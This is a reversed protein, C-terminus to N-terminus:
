NSSIANRILTADIAGLSFLLVIWISVSLLVVAVLSVVGTIYPSFLWISITMGGTVVGVKSLDSLLREVNLPLEKYVIYVKVLVYFTHTIATAIAAGVVGIVPILLVNLGVNLLSATIKAIARERARGLYDLPNDTLKTIAQLVVYVSLIQLVPVAGSYEAGFVLEITPSAVFIIGVAAPVYLLLVHKLSEEYMTAATDLGGTNKQKSYTPSISFGLATAPVQLFEVIQKSLVYFSVALPNLFFGVLITDIEKDIKGSMSTVTLPVNYELIRRPIESDIASAKPMNSYQNKYVTYGGVLAALCSGTIFGGLAGLAGYGLGVLALAFLLRGSRDVAHITAALGIDELGQAIMRFYTTLTAVAIFAFGFALLPALEPEGVASAIVDSGLLFTISVIVISVGNYLFSREIIYPIQSPDTVRYDAVYRAASKALGLKSFIQAVSFVSMALFLVGYEDPKLLRALMVMMIASSVTAVVRGAFETKFRSSLRAALSM